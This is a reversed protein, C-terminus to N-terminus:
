LIITILFFLLVSFLYKTQSSLFFHHFDFIHLFVHGRLGLLADEVIVPDARNLGSFFPVTSFWNWSKEKKSRVYACSEM